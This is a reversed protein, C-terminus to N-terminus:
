GADLEAIRDMIRTIDGEDPENQAQLVELSRNYFKLAMRKDGRLAYVKGLASITHALDEGLPEAAERIALAKYLATEAEDLRGAHRLSIGLQHYCTALSLPEETKRVIAIKRQLFLEAEDHKELCGLIHIIRDIKPLTFLSDDGFSQYSLEPAIRMYKEADMYRGLFCLSKELEVCTFEIGLNNDNITYISLSENLIDVATAHMGQAAYFIGIFRLIEATENHNCGFYTKALTLEDNLMDILQNYEKNKRYFIILNKVTNKYIKCDPTLYKKVLKYSKHTFNEWDAYNESKEMILALESLLEIYEPHNTGLKNEKIIMSKRIWIEATNYEKKNMFFSSLGAILTGTRPHEPGLTRESISLARHFLSEAEVANEFILQNALNGILMAALPHNPGSNKEVIDVARRLLSVAGNGDFKASRLVALNNLCTAALTYDPRQANEAITLARRYLPEASEYDGKGQLSKAILCLATVTEFHDPGRAKELIVVARQGISEARAYDARASHLSALILLRSATEYHLPGNTQEAIHRSLEALRMALPQRFRGANILFAALGGALDGTEPADHSPMWRKWAVQYARELTAKTHAEIDLWLGLLEESSRHELFAELMARETLCKKLQRWNRAARWQYPIEEAARAADIAFGQAAPGDGPADNAFAHAAFWKALKEHAKRRLALAQPSQTEDGLENNGALYRDSVAIRMYDHAFTLRGSSELLTEDLALRIPAWTAPVLGAYALLEEETLGARSAWIATLAKKVRKAECDHEVRELVREFLDDVTLSSLYRDLEDSLDEHRGFLRLEEALTRLFLPNAALPHALIRAEYAAELTKNYHGLYTQLLERQEAQTLPLVAIAQWSGKAALSDRVEGPLCSVLLHVRDPLFEPWWRLDRLDSLGNLADLTIIWRYGEKDAHASADALWTPLSDFLAQPDAPIEDQSGTTRKIREILHRVLSVPSAADASAGLYYEHVQEAPFAQRRRELWNAVLASKGGGSQGEILIRQQGSALAQDLITQYREGGLYLRRRPLAYAEHQRQERTFADPADAQPYAEDLVAWLDAELRKALAEPNPYEEVVPFGSARIRDKLDALRAADESSTSVYDGGKSRAFAPARFYFFARGAMAPDNLVGHLIELETVSKGGQHETLWPRQEVLTPDYKDSPPIWGYREGLMGIFWPRSRDIEALCIPLVEGREAAEPTIGWRLDVDVLEVFRERLRARLAPFVRKTLLEREEGFDRFTSSLFIRAASSKM